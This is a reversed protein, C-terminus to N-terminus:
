VVEPWYFFEDSRIENEYPVRRKRKRGKIEGNGIETKKESTTTRGFCRKENEGVVQKKEVEIYHTTM